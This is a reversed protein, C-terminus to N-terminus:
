PRVLRAAATLSVPPMDRWGHEGLPWGQARVDDSISANAKEAESAAGKYLALFKAM